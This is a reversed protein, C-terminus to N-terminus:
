VKVHQVGSSPTKVHQVGGIPTKINSEKDASLAADLFDEQFKRQYPSTHGAWGTNPGHPALVRTVSGAATGITLNLGDQTALKVLCDRWGKKIKETLTGRDLVKSAIWADLMAEGLRNAGGAEAPVAWNVADPDFSSLAKAIRDKHAAKHDKREEDSRDPDLIALIDTKYEDARVERAHEIVEEAQKSSSLTSEEKKTRRGPEEKPRELAVPITTGSRSTTTGSRSTALLSQYPTSNKGYAVYGMVSYLNSLGKRKVTKVLSMGELAKIARMVATRHLGTDEVLTPISPYCTNHDGIRLALALFVKLQAGSLRRMLSNKGRSFGAGFKIWATTTRSKAEGIANIEIKQVPAQIEIASGYFPPETEQKNPTVKYNTRKEPM